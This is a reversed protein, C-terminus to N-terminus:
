PVITLLGNPRRVAATAEFRCHSAHSLHPFKSAIDPSAVRAMSLVPVPEDGALVRLGEVVVPEFAAYWGALGLSGDSLWAQGDVIGRGLNPRTQVQPRVM